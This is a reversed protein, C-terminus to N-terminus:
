LMFMLTMMQPPHSYITDNKRQRELPKTSSTPKRLFAVLALAAKYTFLRAYM